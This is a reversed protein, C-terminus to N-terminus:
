LNFFSLLSGINSMLAGLVFGIVPFISVIKANVLVYIYNVAMLVWGVGIIWGEM